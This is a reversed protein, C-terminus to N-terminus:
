INEKGNEKGLYASLMERAKRIRYKVLPVGIGLIRAIDKQKREQLFYLVAVEKMEEPLSELALRVGIQEDMNPTHLGSKDPLEKLPIEKIKRYYDRCLNAAIVYLYNIAKGYHQYQKLTQFFRVFTEQAMDEAYGYDDMHRRCYKLIQPYYKQVFSEIAKDDGMRMKQILWFDADM